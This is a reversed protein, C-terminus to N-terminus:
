RHETGSDGPPATASEGDPRTALIEQEAALWDAMDDGHTFGRECYRYYARLEIAQRTASSAPQSSDRTSDVRASPGTPKRSHAM